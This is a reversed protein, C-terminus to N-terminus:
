NFPMHTLTAWPSIVADWRQWWFINCGMRDAPSQSRFLGPILSNDTPALHLTERRRSRLLLFKDLFSSNALIAREVCRRYNRPLGLYSTDRTRNLYGLFEGLTELCDRCSTFNRVTALSASCENCIEFWGPFGLHIYHRLVVLYNKEDIPLSTYARSINLRAIKQTAFSYHLYV